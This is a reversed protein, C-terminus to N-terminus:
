PLVEGLVEDFEEEPSKDPESKPFAELKEIKDNAEQLASELIQCKRQLRKGLQTEPYNFTLGGDKEALQFKIAFILSERFEILNKKAEMWLNLPVEISIRKIGLRADEFDTQSEEM